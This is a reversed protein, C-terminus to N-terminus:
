ETEHGDDEEWHEEEEDQSDIELQRKYENVERYEKDRYFGNLDIMELFCKELFEITKERDKKIYANEIARKIDEENM